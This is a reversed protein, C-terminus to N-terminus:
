GHQHDEEDADCCAPCRGAELVGVPHEEACYVCPAHADHIDDDNPDDSAM